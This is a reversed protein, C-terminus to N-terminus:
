ARRDGRFSRRALLRLCVLAARSASWFGPRARRLARRLLAVATPLDNREVAMNFPRTLLFDGLVRPDSLHEQAFRLSEDVRTSSTLSGTNAVSYDVDYQPAFFFLAGVQRQCRLLWDWDQHRQIRGPWPVREALAKPFLLTSTQLLHMPDRLSSRTFLYADARSFSPSFTRPARGAATGGRVLNVGCAAVWYEIGPPLDAVVELQHALKRPHWTDDDDLLAVLDHLAATIGLQRSANVGEGSDDLLVRVASETGFRGQVEALATEDSNVVVVVEVEVDVQRLASQVADAVTIRGGTPVVVSVRPQEAM